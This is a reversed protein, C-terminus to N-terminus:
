INIIYIKAANHIPINTCFFFLFLIKNGVKTTEQRKMGIIYINRISVSENENLLSNVKEIYKTYRYSKITDVLPMRHISQNLTRMRHISQNLM